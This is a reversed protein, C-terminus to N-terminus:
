RTPSPLSIGSYEPIKRVASLPSVQFRIESAPRFATQHMAMQGRNMEATLSGDPQILEVGMQYAVMGWHFDDANNEVIGAAAVALGAWYLHNNEKEPGNRRVEEDFFDRVRM